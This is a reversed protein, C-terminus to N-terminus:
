YNGFKRYTGRQVGAVQFPTAHDNRHDYHKMVAAEFRQEPGSAQPQAATAAAALVILLRKFTWSLLRISRARRDTSNHTKM